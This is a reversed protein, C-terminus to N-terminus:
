GGPPFPAIFRVPKNPWDQAHVSGAALAIISVSLCFLSKRM